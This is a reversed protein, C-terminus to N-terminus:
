WESREKRLERKTREIDIKFTGCLDALKTPPLIKIGEEEEQFVVAAGAKIGYKERLEKPIVLQGKSNIKTGARRM